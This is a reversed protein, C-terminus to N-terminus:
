VRRPNMPNGPSEHFDEVSEEEELLGSMELRRIRNTEIQIEEVAQGRRGEECTDCRVQRIEFMARFIRPVNWGRAAALGTVPVALGACLCLLVVHTTAGPSRRSSKLPRLRGDFHVTEPFTDLLLDQMLLGLKSGAEQWASETWHQEMVFLSSAAASLIKEPPSRFVTVSQLFMKQANGQLGCDQLINPLEQLIQGLQALQQVERMTEQQDPTSFSWLQQKPAVRVLVDGISAWLEQLEPTMKRVCHGFLVPSEWLFTARGDSEHGFFSRLLACTVELLEAATPRKPGSVLSRNEMDQQVLPAPLSSLAENLARSWIKGLDRGFAAYDELAFDTSASVLDDHLDIDQLMLRGDREQLLLLADAARRLNLLLEHSLCAAALQGELEILVQLCGVLSAVTRSGLPETPHAKLPRVAGQLVAVFRSSANFFRAGGSGEMLCHANGASAFGDAAGLVIIRGWVEPGAPSPAAKGALPLAWALLKLVKRWRFSCSPAM